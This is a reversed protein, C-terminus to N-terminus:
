GTAAYLTAEGGQVAIEMDRLDTGFILNETGFRETFALTM